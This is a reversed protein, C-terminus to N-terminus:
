QPVNIFRRRSFIKELYQDIDDDESFFDFGGVEILRYFSYKFGENSLDLQNLPRKILMKFERREAKGHVMFHAYGSDFTGNKVSRAVDPYKALYWDDDFDSQVNSIETM